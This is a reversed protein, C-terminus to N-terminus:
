PEVAIQQSAGTAFRVMLRTKGSGDDEAFIRYGNAAPAAPATQEFGELAAGTDTGNASLRLVSAANRTLHIDAESRITAASQLTNIANGFFLGNGAYGGGSNIVMGLSSEIKFAGNGSRFETGTYGFASVDGNIGVKFIEAVGKEGCFIYNRGGGQFRPLGKLHLLASGSASNNLGAIDIVAGDFVKTADNWTASLSLGTVPDTL